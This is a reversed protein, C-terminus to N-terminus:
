RMMIIADQFSKCVACACCAGRVSDMMYVFVVKSENEADDKASDLRRQRWRPGHGTAQDAQLQVSRWWGRSRGVVSAATNPEEAV